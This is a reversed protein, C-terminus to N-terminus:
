FRKFYEELGKRIGLAAKQRFANSRLLAEEKPNSIFALEVLISPLENMRNVYFEQEKVGRNYTALSDVMNKQVAQALEESKPGNFNVTTNYYTTSGKSSTSFSDAHISIFADANSSNAIATRESLELFVDTSRTLTVIAGSKELESKLLLATKLNVEKEMLGTPGVAGTDKGGHGADIIIKKGLLGTPIVKITVKDKYDRITFTYGPEFSLIVSKESASSQIAEISKIGKVKFAPLEVDTIGQSLKLRNYSLTSYSFKFDSPKKWILYQADKESLTSPTTLRKLSVTSTQTKVIWGRVGNSTEVNIWGNLEQLVRLSENGTLTKTVAYKPSAGKRIVANNLAYVFKAESQSKVLEFKPTWGTKGSPTKIRVWIQKSSNVFEGLVTVKSNYTLKEVARYNYTAGSYLIANKTGVYMTYTSQSPPPAPSNKEFASAIVWGKVKGLDVRFWQEGKSNKFSDIISLKQNKSVSGVIAYSESAGKRVNAKNVQVTKIEKAAMSTQSKFASAIVWGKVKGLDVRFWKEGKSNTFSDIIKVKQNKYVKAISLYSTSAGKRVNANSYEVIKYSENKTTSSVYKSSPAKDLFEGSVWGNKGEFEIRYWLAGQSNTFKDIVKVKQGKSLKGIVQYSTSAGKRVNINTGNSVAYKGLLSAEAKTFSKSLGWGKVDGLDVRYWSEGLSNTFEDIVVVQQGTSLSKVSPYSATAGKRLEVKQITVMSVPLKTEEANAVLPLLFATALFSSAIIKKV